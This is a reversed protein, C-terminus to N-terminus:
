SRKVEGEKLFGKWVFDHFVQGGGEIWDNDWESKWPYTHSGQFLCVRIDKNNKNPVDACLMDNTKQMADPVISVNPPNFELTMMDLSTDGVIGRLTTLVGEWMFASPDLATLEGMDNACGLMHSDQLSTQAASGKLLEGGTLANAWLMLCCMKKDEATGKTCSYECDNTPWKNGTVQLAAKKLFEKQAGSVVQTLFTTSRPLFKNYRDYASWLTPPAIDDQYGWMLLTPVEADLKAYSSRAAGSSCPAIAAPRYEGLAYPGKGMAWQLSSMGGMSQGTLYIREADVNYQPVVFEMVQKFYDYDNAGSASQCVTPIQPTSSKETLECAKPDRELHSGFCPYANKPRLTTWFCIPGKGESRDAEDCTATRNVPDMTKGWGLVNWSTASSGTCNNATTNCDNLIKRPRLVADPSGEPTLLVFKKETTAQYQYWQTWARQSFLSDYSGHFDVVLPCSENVCEKPMDVGFRRVYWTHTDFRLTFHWTEFVGSDTETRGLLQPESTPWETRVMFEDVTSKRVSALRTKWGEVAPHSTKGASAFYAVVACLGLALGFWGLRQPVPSSPIKKEEEILPTVEISLERMHTAM